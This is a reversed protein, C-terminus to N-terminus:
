RTDTTFSFQNEQVDVVVRTGALQFLSEIFHKFFISGSRGMRHFGIVRQPLQDKSLAIKAGKGQEFYFLLFKLITEPTIQRYWISIMGKVLGSQALNKAFEAMADEGALSMLRAQAEMPVSISDYKEAHRDWDLYRRIIQNLLGNITLKKSSAEQKLDRETQQDLRM